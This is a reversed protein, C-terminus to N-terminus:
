RNLKDLRNSPKIGLIELECISCFYKNETLKVTADYDCGNTNCKINYITRYKIIEEEM